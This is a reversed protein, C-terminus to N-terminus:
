LGIAMKYTAAAIIASTVVGAVFIKDMNKKVVWITDNISM